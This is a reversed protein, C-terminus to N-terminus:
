AKEIAPDIFLTPHAARVLLLPAHFAGSNGGSRNLISWADAMKSSADYSDSPPFPSGIVSGNRWTPRSL